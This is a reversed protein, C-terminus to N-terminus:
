QPIKSMQLIPLLIALVVFGVVVAMAVVLVPELLTTMRQASLEIEEDYAESIKRLLEELRGSEEGIAVMYSLVPPFIKSRKLPTSIDAGGLVKAGVEDLVRALVQNDVVDRVIKLAELAPIGSELLTAFTAAFRSIAQKKFFQGLIPVRIKLSDYTYRGQETSLMLRVLAYFFALVALILWWFNQLFASFGLLLETPLPLVRKQQELILMIKPVVYTLLFTVVGIGVVVMILPYTLAALVKGQIRYQSHLYDSLRALIVDLNGSAEGARVMNVYLKNFVYPHGSLADAFTRGSVVKEKVDRLVAELQKSECQEILATVSQALPIGAALLTALQRTMIAVESLRRRSFIRPLSVRPAAQATEEVPTIDTVLLSQGRLKNRAERPSDADIIGSATEGTRKLAKYQYVPM